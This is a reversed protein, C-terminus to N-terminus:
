AACRPPARPAPGAAPPDSPSPPSQSVSHPGFLPYTPHSLPKLALRPGASALTHGDQWPRGGCATRGHVCAAGWCKAGPAATLAVVGAPALPRGPCFFCFCHRGVLVAHLAVLHCTRLGPQHYTLALTPHVNGPAGRANTGRVATCCRREVKGKNFLAGKSPVAPPGRAINGGRLSPM